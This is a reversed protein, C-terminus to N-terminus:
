ALMEIGKRGRFTVVILRCRVESDGHSDEPPVLGATGSYKSREGGAAGAGSAGVMAGVGPTSATMDGAYSSPRSIHVQRREKKALGARRAANLTYIIYHADEINEM